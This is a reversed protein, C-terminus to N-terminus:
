AGRGAPRRCPRPRDPGPRVHTVWQERAEDIDAAVLHATNPTRPRPDDGRLRVAATTHEDLVVHASTTTDGQAGHATTAYAVEVHRARVRHPADRAGNAATVTLCGDPTVRTVTWTDRNAVDLDHDNRRTVIVDGVGIREGGATTVTSRTTSWEPPSLRDRIM